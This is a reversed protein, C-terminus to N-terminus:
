ANEVRDTLSMSSRRTVKSMSMSAHRKQEEGFASYSRRRTIRLMGWMMAIAVSIWAAIMCFITMALGM